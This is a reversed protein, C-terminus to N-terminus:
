KKLVDEYDENKSFEEKAFPCLPMILKNSQRAFDVVQKVLQAAIGQGRLSNDVWTHDIIITDDDVTSMTIEALNKGNEDDYYFRNTDYLFEM